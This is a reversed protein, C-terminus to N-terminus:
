NVENAKIQTYVKLHQKSIQEWQFNKLVKKRALIGVKRQLRPNNILEIICKAWQSPSQQNIIFGDKGNEIFGQTYSSQALIIPKACSMAELAALPMGENKSPLIFIDCENYCDIKKKGSVVGRFFVDKLNHSKVYKKLTKELPGNGCFILAIKNNKKKIQEFVRLLFLPNKREILLGMYLLISKGLNNKGFIEKEASKQPKFEKSVGNQIVFAKQHDFGYKKCFWKKIEGSVCIIADYKKATLRNILDYLLGEEKLHHTAIIPVSSNLLKFFIAGIGLFYPNHVRLIDFRERKYTSFLYPVVIFNFLIAPFHNFHSRTVFINKNKEYYKYKPLLVLIKIGSQAIRRIINYDHIEGGLNSNPDLGLQPSCIIM